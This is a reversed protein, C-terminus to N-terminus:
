DLMLYSRGVRLHGTLRPDLCYLIAVTLFAHSLALPLWNPHRDYIWCWALAALLTLPALFPNPLHLVAFIAAALVIGARRSVVTQCERLLVTQLAFQQGGAWVAFTALNQWRSDRHQWTDAALGVLGIAILAPLTLATARQVAPWLASRRLGWEGTRFAKGVALALVALTALHATVRPTVPALVWTYGLIIVLIPVTFRVKAVKSSGGFPIRAARAALM